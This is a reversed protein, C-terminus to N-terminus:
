EYNSGSLAEDHDENMGVAWAQLAVAPASCVVYGIIIVVTQQVSKIKARSIGELSHTRPRFSASRPQPGQHQRSRDTDSRIFNLPSILQKLTRALM